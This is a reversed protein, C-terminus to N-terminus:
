KNTWKMISRLMKQARHMANLQFKHYMVNESPVGLCHWSAMVNAVQSARQM